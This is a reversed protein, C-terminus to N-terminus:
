EKKSALLQEQNKRWAVAEQLSKFSKRKRQRTAGLCIEALYNDTNKCYSVGVVGTNSRVRRNGQQTLKSAWRCNEPCYDGDCDIRDLTYGKPRRGMDDVFAQFSRRWRECVKIGRAGYYRYSGCGKHYCRNIMGTYVGHLPHDQPCQPYFKKRAM